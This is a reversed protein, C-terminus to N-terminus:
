IVWTVQSSSATQKLVLCQNLDLSQIEMPHYVTTMRSRSMPRNKETWVKKTSQDVTIIITYLMCRMKM